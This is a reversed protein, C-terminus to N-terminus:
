SGGALRNWIKLRSIAVTQGGISVEPIIRITGTNTRSSCSAKRSRKMRNAPDVFM